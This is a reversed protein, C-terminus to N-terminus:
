NDLTKPVDTESAQEKEQENIRLDDKVACRGRPLRWCRCVQGATLLDAFPVLRVIPGARKNRQVITVELKSRNTCIVLGYLLGSAKGMEM